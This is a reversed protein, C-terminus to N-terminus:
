LANAPRPHPLQILPGTPYPVADNLFYQGLRTHEPAQWAAFCTGSFSPSRISDFLFGSLPSKRSQRPTGVFRVSGYHSVEWLGAELFRASRTNRDSM